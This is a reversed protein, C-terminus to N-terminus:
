DIRRQSRWVSGLLPSPHCLQDTPALATGLFHHNIGCLL